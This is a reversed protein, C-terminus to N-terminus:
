EDDRREVKIISYGERPYHQVDRVQGWAADGSEMARCRQTINKASSYRGQYSTAEIGVQEHAEMVERGPARLRKTWMSIQGGFTTNTAGIDDKADTPFEILLKTDFDGINIGSLAV